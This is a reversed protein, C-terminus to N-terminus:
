RDRDETVCPLLSDLTHMLLSAEPMSGPIQGNVYHIM